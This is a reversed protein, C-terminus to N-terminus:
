LTLSFRPRLTLHNGTRLFSLKYDIPIHTSLDHGHPLGGQYSTSIYPNNVHLRSMKSCGILHPIAPAPEVAAQTGDLRCWTRWFWEAPFQTPSPSAFSRNKPPLVQRSKGLNASLPVPLVISQLSPSRIM